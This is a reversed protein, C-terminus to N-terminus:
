LAPRASLIRAAVSLVLAEAEEVLGATLQERESATLDTLGIEHQGDTIRRLCRDLLDADLSITLPPTKSGTGSALWEPNVSLRDALERLVQLSPVRDGREIRCIYVATCGQFSLARQSMGAEVRAEKLREGVGDEVHRRNAM